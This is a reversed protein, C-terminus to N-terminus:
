AFQVILDGAIFKPAPDGLVVPKPSALQGHVLFDVGTESESVAFHTLTGWDETPEDDFQIDTANSTQGSTGTSAGTTGGQTATFLTDSPTVSKPTYGGGTVEIGGGADTTASLFLRLFLIAPPSFSRGRFVLDVMKNELYNGMAAM